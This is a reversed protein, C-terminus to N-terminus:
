NRARRSSFNDDLASQEKRELEHQYEAKQEQRMGDLLERKGHAAEYIRMQQDRLVELKALQEKGTAVLGDVARLEGYFGSIVAAAATRQIAEERQALLKQRQSALDILSQRVAAIQAQIQGLLREERQEAIERLRLVTALTFRFAM